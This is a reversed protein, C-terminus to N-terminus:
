QKEQLRGNGLEREVGVKIRMRSPELAVAAALGVHPPSVLFNGAVFLKCKKGRSREKQCPCLAVTTQPNLHAKRSQLLFVGSKPAFEVSVSIYSPALAWSDGDGM